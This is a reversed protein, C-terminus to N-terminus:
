TTSSFDGVTMRILADIQRTLAKVQATVQATTPSALALYTANNALATQAAQFINAQTASDGSSAITPPGGNPDPTVTATFQPLVVGITVPVAFGTGGAQYIQRIQEAADAISQASIVRVADADTITAFLM